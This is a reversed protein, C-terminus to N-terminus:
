NADRRLKKLKELRNKYTTLIYESESLETGALIKEWNTKGIEQKNFDYEEWEEYNEDKWKKIMAKPIKALHVGKKTKMLIGAAKKIKEKFNIWYYYGIFGWSSASIYEQQKKEKMKKQEEETRSYKKTTYRAVYAATETTGRGIIVFGKGWIKNIKASTYLWYGRRDRSYKRLDDPKFNFIVAHYHPRKTKPGYEGCNIYRIPKKNKRKSNFGFMDELPNSPLEEFKCGPFRGFPEKKTSKNIHYRLKKWFGQLDSRRLKRDKPLNYNDYTLTLFTKNKWCKSECYAKTAWEKSKDTRCIECKGCGVENFDFYGMAYLQRHLKWKSHRPSKNYYVWEKSKFFREIGVWWIGDGISEINKVNLIGTKIIHNKDREIARKNITYIYNRYPCQLKVGRKPKKSM